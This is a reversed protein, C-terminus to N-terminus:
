LNLGPITGIFESNSTYKEYLKGNVNNLDSRSLGSIEKRKLIGETMFVDLLYIYMSISYQNGIKKIYFCLFIIQM